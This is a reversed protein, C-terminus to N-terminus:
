LNMNGPGGRGGGGSQAALLQMAAAQIQKDAAGDQKNAAHMNIDGAREFVGIRDTYRDLAATLKGDTGAAERTVVAVQPGSGSGVKGDLGLLEKRYAERKTPDLENEYNYLVENRHRTDSSSVATGTEKPANAGFGALNPAVGQWAGM